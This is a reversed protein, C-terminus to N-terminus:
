QESSRESRSRALKTAWDSLRTQAINAVLPKALTAALKLGALVAGAKGATGIKQGTSRDMYVIKKRPRLLTLLLGGVVAGGIWRGRHESFSQRARAPLDMAAKLSETASAMERRSATIEALLAAKDTSEAM